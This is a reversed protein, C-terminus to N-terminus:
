FGTVAMGAQLSSDGERQQFIILAVQTTSRSKIEEGHYDWVIIGYAASDCLDDHIATLPDYKSLNEVLKDETNSIAYSGKVFSDRFATIRRAKKTGGSMVPLIIIAEDDMSRIRFLLKFLPILLRQAAEAEIVWTTIGWYMSLALMHEFAEEPSFKGEKAEILAPISMDRLRAHVTIASNDLVKKGATGAQKIAVDGFAPDLVIFGAELMDPTPVPIRVGAGLNQRLIADQTLNMMEAEWLHGVGNRRYFAYDALLAEVTHLGPWLPQLEGNEDRVLSGYVTPNWAPDKSLRALLTTERIINGIYLIFATRAVAKILQGFFWADLQPQLEDTTNDNDEIDDLVVMQPRLNNILLGRVQQIAGLARFIVRKYVVETSGPQRLPLDLMWLSETESSKVIITEYGTLNRENASCLWSMIDRIANKAHGNTKSVYLAFSLPTYKLFLIVALKAITSKAHGRPITFIKRLQMITAKQNFKEVYQLLEQWVDIHLQPIAITLEEGLYLAFFSVCDYRIAQLLEDRNLAIFSTEDIDLSSM